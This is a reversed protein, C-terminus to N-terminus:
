ARVVVLIIGCSQRRLLNGHRGNITELRARRLIEHDANRRVRRRPRFAVYGLMRRSHEDRIACLYREGEGCTLHTIGTLWVADLRGQDFHRRALDPPFSATPDSVTTRVTFTRPGIGEIGIGATIAAVTKENM